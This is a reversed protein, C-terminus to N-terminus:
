YCLYQVERETLYTLLMSSYVTACNFRKATYLGVFIIETINYAVSILLTWALIFKEGVDIFFLVLM